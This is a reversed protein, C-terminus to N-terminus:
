ESTPGAMQGSGARLSHKSPASRASSGDANGPTSAQVRASRAWSCECIGVITTGYLLIVHYGREILARAAAFMEDRSIPSENPTAQDIM